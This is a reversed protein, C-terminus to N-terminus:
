KNIHYWKVHKNLLQYHFWNFIGSMLSMAICMRRWIGKWQGERDNENAKESKKRQRMSKQKQKQRVSRVVKDWFFFLFTKFRRTRNFGSYVTCFACSVSGSRERQIAPYWGVNRRQRHRNEQAIQKGVGGRRKNEKIITIKEKREKEVKRCSNAVSYSRSFTLRSKKCGLSGMNVNFISPRKLYIQLM